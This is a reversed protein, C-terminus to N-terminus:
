CENDLYSNQRDFPQRDFLRDTFLNGTFLNGTSHTDPFRSDTFLSHGSQCGSKMETCISVKILEFNKNKIFNCM